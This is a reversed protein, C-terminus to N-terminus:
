AKEFLFRDELPLNLGAALDRLNQASTTQRKGGMSLVKVLIEAAKEVTHMLGFALDFNEGSCFTGHQAWIAADYKKMLESTAVALERTGPVMWKVIGVGRPFVFPAEPMMEWLERTFAEDTLPLVFTLAILNPTHAHYIIRFAGNTVTKKVAHNMLHPALEMTPQGGDRLGWAVRYREGKEDLEILALNAEPDIEVNRLFKGRGTVLFFEGALNPVDAGIEIWPKSFDLGGRVQAVEEDKIRYSLNGGNREHWGMNFGDTAMRAFGKVFGSDLINM